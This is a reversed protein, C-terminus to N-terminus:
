MSNVPAPSDNLIPSNKSLVDGYMHDDNPIPDHIDKETTPAAQPINMVPEEMIPAPTLTGRIVVFFKIEM